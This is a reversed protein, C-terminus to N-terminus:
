VNGAQSIKAMSIRPTSQDRDCTLDDRFFVVIYTEMSAAPANRSRAVPSRCIYNCLACFSERWRLAPSMSRPRVCGAQSFGDGNFSSSPYERLVNKMHEIGGHCPPIVLHVTKKTQNSIKVLFCTSSRSLRRLSLLLDFTLANECSWCPAGRELDLVDLLRKAVDGNTRTNGRLKKDHVVGVVLIFVAFRDHISSICHM